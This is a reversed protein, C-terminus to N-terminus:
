KVIKIKQGAYILNANKINNDKVLKAVTTKYRQAIATLTDGRQVTYTVTSTTKATTTSKTTSKVATTKPTTAVNKKYGNLGANKIITPYDVYCYDHDVNNSIGNVRWTSSHQWMGYAGSYNCKSNYEAIWLAYRKAVDSSIYTQLPSRSIYLGAFYGNKELEGCFSKILNDCFTGGRAFQSSEELDFYIPYEFQKGKIVELCAKAETVADAASTAYSYWYAGVNLGAAKARAYNQEFFPDKQSTTRGFGARIIVFDIGGAKVKAFDINGQHQSVDIGQKSM